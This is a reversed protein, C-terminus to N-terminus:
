QSTSPLLESGCLSWTVRNRTVEWKWVGREGKTGCEANRTGRQSTSPLLESGCLSWTVRNRTVEWKWVGRKGRREANRTGREANLLPLQVPVAGRCGTGMVWRM